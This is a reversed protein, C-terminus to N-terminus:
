PRLKRIKRSLIKIKRSFPNSKNNVKFNRNIKCHRSLISFVISRFIQPFDDIESDVVREWEINDLERNVREYDVDKLNFMSFDLDHQTEPAQATDKFGCFYSTYMKVLKHDSYSIDRVEIM